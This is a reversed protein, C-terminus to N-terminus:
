TGRKKATNPELLTYSRIFEGSPVQGKLVTGNVTKPIAGVVTKIAAGLTRNIRAKIHNGRETGLGGGIARQYLARLDGDDRIHVFVKFTIDEYFTEATREKAYAIALKKLELEAQVRSADSPHLDNVVHLTLVDAAYDATEQGSDKAKSALAEAAVGELRVTMPVLNETAM